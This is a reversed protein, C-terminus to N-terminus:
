PLVMALLTRYFAPEALAKAVVKGHHDFRLTEDKALREVLGTRIAAAFCREMQRDSFSEFVRRGFRSFRIDKMIMNQWLRQYDALASASFNGSALASNATQVAAEAAKLGYYVGGGTIPKVQGACDGAVLIRQAYTKRLPKLSVGRYEPKGTPHVGENKLHSIFAELFASANKRALLGALAQGNDLPELWAFFGPAFRSGLFVKLETVKEATVMVQAGITFDNVKGLGAESTLAPNFGAAMILMRGEINFRSTGDASLKVRDLAIEIGTIKEGLIYEAGAEIAKEAMLQDMAARNVTLAQIRSRSLQLTRGEPSYVCAKNLQRVVPSQGVGAMELCEPSIIGACCVPNGLRPQKEIVTVKFGLGALRRAAYSGVPGAGIILIDRM